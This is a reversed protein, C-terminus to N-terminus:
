QLFTQILEKYFERLPPSTVAVDDYSHNESWTSQHDWLAPFDANTVSDPEINRPTMHSIRSTIFFGTRKRSRGTESVASEAQM